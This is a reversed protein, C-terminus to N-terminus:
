WVRSRFHNLEGQHISHSLLHTNFYDAWGSLFDVLKVFLFDITREIAVDIYALPRNSTVVQSNYCVVSAANLFQHHLLLVHPTTSSM